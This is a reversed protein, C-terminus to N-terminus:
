ISNCYSIINLDDYIMLIEISVVWICLQTLNSVNSSKIKINTQQWPDLGQGGRVMGGKSQHRGQM